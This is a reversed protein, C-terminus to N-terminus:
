TSPDKSSTGCVEKNYYSTAGKALKLLEKSSQFNYCCETKTEALNLKVMVLLATLTGDLQLKGRDERKIKRIVSFM